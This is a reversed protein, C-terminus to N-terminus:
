DTYVFAQKQGCEVCKGVIVGEDFFGMMGEEGEIRECEGVLFLASGCKCVPREERTHERHHGTFSFIRTEIGCEACSGIIVGKFNGKKSGTHHEITLRLPVVGCTSCKAPTFIHYDTPCRHAAICSKAFAQLNSFAAAHKM